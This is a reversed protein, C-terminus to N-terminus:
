VDLIYEGPPEPRRRKWWVLYGYAWTLAVLLAMSAAVAALSFNEGVNAVFIGILGWMVALAYWLNAQSLFTILSGLLGALIIVAVDVAFGTLGVNAIASSLSAFVAVTVWGALISIPFSVLIRQTTSLHHSRRAIDFLAPLLAALALVLIFLLQWEGGVLQAVLAWGAIIAFAAVTYWGISRLLPNERQSPLAQYIAYAFIAPFILGWIAFAYGAPQVPTEGSQSARESISIGIGTLPAVYSALVQGIAFVVNLVQRWLDQVM